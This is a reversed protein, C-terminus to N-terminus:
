PVRKALAVGAIFFTEPDSQQGTAITFTAGIEQADPGYFKPSIFNLGGDFSAPALVGGVANGNFSWTGFNRTSSGQAGSINLAGSYSANSFDVAFSSTGTVSYPGNKTSGADGYVVGAYNASGTRAALLYAPTENGFVIHQINSTYGANNEQRFEWSAYSTYTLALETNANGMKYYSITQFTRSAGDNKKYTQFNDRSADLVGSSTMFSQVPFAQSVNKLDTVGNAGIKVLPGSGQWANATYPYQQGSTTATRRIEAKQGWLQQNSSLGVLTQTASMGRQGILAGTLVSTGDTAYFAAGIEEAGPGFFLGDIAGSLVTAAESWRINGSFNNGSGVAGSIQLRPRGPRAEGTTFGYTEIDASGSFLGLAFDVDFNGKGDFRAAEVGPATLMGLVNTTWRANGTRPVASAPTDFGYTFTSFETAQSSGSLNSSEWYGLGVYQNSVALGHDPTTVLTLKGGTTVYRAEGPIASVQLDRQTFAQSVSGREVTYTQTALDYRVALTGSSGSTAQTLGGPLTLTARTASSRTTFTEDKIPAAISQTPTPTPTPSPTPSPLPVSEVGGGGCASM